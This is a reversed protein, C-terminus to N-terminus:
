TTKANNNQVFDDKHTIFAVVQSIFSAHDDQFHSALNKAVSTITTLDNKISSPQNFSNVAEQVSNEQSIKSLIEQIKQAETMTLEKIDNSFIGLKIVVRQNKHM